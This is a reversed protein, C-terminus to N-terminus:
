SRETELHRGQISCKNIANNLSDRWRETTVLVVYRQHLEATMALNPDKANPIHNASLLQLAKVTQICINFLHMNRQINLFKCKKLPSNLRKLQSDTSPLYQICLSVNVPNLHISSVNEYGELM